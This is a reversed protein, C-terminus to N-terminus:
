WGTLQSRCIWCTLLKLIASSSTQVFCISIGPRHIEANEPVPLLKQIFELVKKDSIPTASLEKAEDNLKDMYYEALLLTKKAESLKVQMDGTHNTSWMRKADHLALNLTNQCVIRVPTM